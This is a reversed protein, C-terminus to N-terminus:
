SGSALAVAAESTADLFTFAEQLYLRVTTPTHDLYGVSVDQVLHMAFDGGRTTLVIPSSLTPARLVDGDLLRRLHDAVPFGHETTASAAIFDNDGLLLAYPGGVGTHRLSTLARAVAAPYEDVRDPREVARDGAAGLIGVIHAASFGELIARDEAGALAVAADAAPTWNGDQGGREVDDIDSRDLTFEIRLEIVPAALRQHAQVHEDLTQVPRLHGTGVAATTAEADIVDVVRRAASNTTFTRTVQQDIQEWAATTVPALDRHLNNM